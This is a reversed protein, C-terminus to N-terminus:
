NGFARHPISFDWLVFPIDGYYVRPSDPLIETWEQPKGDVLTWKKGYAWRPGNFRRALITKGNENVFTEVMTGAPDKSPDLVRLTRHEANGIRVLWLGAGNPNVHQDTINPMGETFHSDDLWKWKGVDVIKVPDGPDYHWDEHFGNDKWTSIRFTNDDDEYFFGYCRM